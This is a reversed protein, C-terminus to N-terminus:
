YDAMLALCAVCRIGMTLQHAPCIWIFYFYALCWPLGFALGWSMMIGLYSLLAVSVLGLLIAGVQCHQRMQNYKDKDDKDVTKTKKVLMLYLLLTV